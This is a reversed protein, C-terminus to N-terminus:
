DEKPFADIFSRPNHNTVRVGRAQLQPLMTRFRPIWQSFKEDTSPDMDFGVLHIDKAGKLYALNIAAYGSNGGTCLFGPDDSLGDEHSRQLYTVGPINALDPHTDLAVATYKEGKVSCLFGTHSRLWDPDASFICADTILKLRTWPSFLLHKAGDNVVITSRGALRDVDLREGSPGAAVIWVESWWPPGVIGYSM